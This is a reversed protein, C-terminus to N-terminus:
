RQGEEAEQLEDRADARGPSLGTLLGCTIWLYEYVNEGGAGGETLAPTRERAIWRM